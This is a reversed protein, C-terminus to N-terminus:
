GTCSILKLSETMKMVMILSKELEIKALSYEVNWKTEHLFFIYYPSQPNYYQTDFQLSM